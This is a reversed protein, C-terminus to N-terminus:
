YLFIYLKSIYLIISLIRLLNKFSKNFKLKIINIFFRQLYDFFNVLIKKYLKFFNTKKKYYIYESIKHIISLKCNQLFSNDASLGQLHIMRSEPIEIITKNKEITKDCLDNDEFYMFLDKDFGGIEDFFEKKILLACGVAFQYCTNGEAKQKNLINKKNIKERNIYSLSGNNRRNNNNDYLAPALIGINKYSFYSKYLIEISASEVLIDPNLILIFPTKSESIGLNNGKGYGLNKKTKIYKINKVEQVLSRIEDSKSNDVIITKFKSIESLNKQILKYSNFCVIILTIDNYINM